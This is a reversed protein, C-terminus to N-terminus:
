SAICSQIYKCDLKEHKWLETHLILFSFSNGMKLGCPTPPGITLIDPGRLAGVVGVVVGSLGNTLGAGGLRGAM